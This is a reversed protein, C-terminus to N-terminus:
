TVTAGKSDNEHAPALCGSAPPATGLPESNAARNLQRALWQSKGTTRVVFSRFDHLAEPWGECVTGFINTWRQTHDTLPRERQEWIDLAALVDSAGDVTVALSLANQFSLNAGQGLNPPQAHAADGVLAVRGSSWSKCSVHSFRDRRVPGDIADILSAHAPFSTTWTAKDVPVRGGRADDARSVLAIYLYDWSCGCIMLRRHGNLYEISINGFDYARKPLLLRTSCDNQLVFKKTLGLAERLRSRYGDAAVVLDARPLEEGGELVVRGSPEAAVATSNTLIEVGARQAVGVLADYLTARPPIYLREGDAFKRHMLIRRREDQVEWYSIPDSRAITEELAWIQELVRLGNEWLWIGAGYMRLDGSTEHVRVTWGTRALATAVTLGALGAGVVEAHRRAAM